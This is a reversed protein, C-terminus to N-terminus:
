RGEAAFANAASVGLFTEIAPLTIRTPTWEGREWRRWTGEDVRALSAAARIALGRRRREAKLADVLTTPPQWPEKGLFGILAPYFHVFPEKLDREWWMFSKPDAGVLGAAQAQTLGLERRRRRLQAGLSSGEDAALLPRNARLYAKVDPM